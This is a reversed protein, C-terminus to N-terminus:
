PSRAVYVRLTDGRGGPPPRIERFLAFTQEVYAQTGPPCNRLDGEYLAVVEIKLEKVQRILGELTGGPEIAFGVGRAYFEVEQRTGLIRKGPGHIRVIALGGEKLTIKDAFRPRMFRATMGISSVILFAAVAHKWKVWGTAKVIGVAAVPLFFVM